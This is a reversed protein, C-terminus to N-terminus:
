VTGKVLTAFLLDNWADVPGPMCWHVCDHSGKKWVNGFHVDPHGDPRVLMARTVDLALLRREKVRRRKARELEELQVGRLEMTVNYTSILKYADALEHLPSTRTCSGGANWGGNEFHGPSFTRLITTIGKFRETYKLATRISMRLAFTFDYKPIEPESCSVCGIM